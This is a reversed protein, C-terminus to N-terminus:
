DARSSDVGPSRLEVVPAPQAHLACNYPGLPTDSKGVARVPGFNGWFGLGWVLQEGAIVGTAVM